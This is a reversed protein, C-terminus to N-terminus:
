GGPLGLLARTQAATALPRGAIRALEAVRGVLRANTAPVTREADMWANDELGTRVHGGTFVAVANMPLQFAGLGGAAWTTGAPLARTLQALAEATAPATNPSGLIVNAYLPPELVDRAVLEHALYAMGTDFVELEPRIGRERMRTALAVITEPANVSATTRFNLSGLTLSAMDPRADGDLALVDARQDLGAADRGSTTVCVVVGPCRARIEPVFEAYADRRWDPGEDDARRAHLHLITAGAAFVAGADAVIQEPTVPVHPVTARRPVMGTLAVNVVLPPYPRLPHPVHDATRPM